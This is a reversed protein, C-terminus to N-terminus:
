RDDFIISLIIFGLLAIFFFVHGITLDLFNGNGILVFGEVIWSTSEVFWNKINYILERITTDTM